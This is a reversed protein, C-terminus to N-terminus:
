IKVKCPLVSAAASAHWLPSAGPGVSRSGHVPLARRGDMIHAWRDQEELNFHMLLGQGAASTTGAANTTGAERWHHQQVRLKHALVSAAADGTDWMCTFGQEQRNHLGTSSIGGAQTLDAYV